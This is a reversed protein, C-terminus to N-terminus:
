LLLMHKIGLDVCTRIVGMAYRNLIGRRSEEAGYAALLGSYVGWPKKFTALDQLPM